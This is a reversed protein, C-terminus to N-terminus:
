IIRRKSLINIGILAFAGGVLATILQPTSMSAALANAVKTPFELGFVYILKKASFSLFLFKVVSGIIVGIIRQIQGKEMFISFILVYIANGVMIFPIFPALPAALQGVLYALVPTLVGVGVGFWRGCIYATLILVMNVIPGVIFQNIEPITRGIIQFIIAIALLVSAQVLKKTKSEM